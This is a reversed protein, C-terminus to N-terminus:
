FDASGEEEASDMGRFLNNEAGEGTGAPLEGDRWDDGTLVAEPRRAPMPALLERFIQNCALTLARRDGGAPGAEGSVDFSQELRGAWLAPGYPNAPDIMRAELGVSLSRRSQWNRDDWRFVTVEFIADEDLRGPTYGAERVVGGGTSSANIYPIDGGMADSVLEQALPSYLRLVLGRRAATRLVSAPAGLADDTLRVPAVVVDTPNREALTAGPSLVEVNRGALRPTTQCGVVALTALAAGTIFRLSRVM